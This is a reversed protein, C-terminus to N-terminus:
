VLITGLGEEPLTTDESVPRADPTGLDTGDFKTLVSSHLLDPHTVIGGVHVVRHRLKVARGGVSLHVLLVGSHAAGATKAEAIHDDNVTKNDVSITSGVEAAEGYVYLTNRDNKEGVITVARSLGARFPVARPSFLPLSSTSATKVAAM